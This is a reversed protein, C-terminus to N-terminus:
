DTGKDRESLAKERFSALIQSLVSPM